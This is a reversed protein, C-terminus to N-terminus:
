LLEVARARLATRQEHAAGLFDDVLDQVLVLQKPMISKQRLHIHPTHRVTRHHLRDLQQPRPHRRLDSFCQPWPGRALPWPALGWRETSVREARPASDRATEGTAGPGRGTAVDRSMLISSMLNFG